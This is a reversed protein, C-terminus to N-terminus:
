VQFIKGAPPKRLKGLVNSGQVSIRDGNNVTEFNQRSITQTGTDFQVRMHTDTLDIVSGTKVKQSRGMLNIMDLEM